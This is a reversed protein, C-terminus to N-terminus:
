LIMSSVKRLKNPTSNSVNRKRKGTARTGPGGGPIQLFRAVTSKKHADERISFDVDIVPEQLLIIKGPNGDSMKELKAPYQKHWNRLIDWLFGNPADTKISNAQCHSLSVRYGANMLASQFIKMKIPQLKVTSTLSALSYFLPVDPLEEKAVTLIGLMRKHTAYAETAGEENLHSIARDLWEQNHMSNIWIPGGIKHNSGCFECVNSVPPGNSTKCKMGNKGRPEIEGLPHTYHSKCGNCQFVHGINSYAKKTLLPSDRVRVFVRIYYDVYVSVLPEIVRKYRIAHSQISGLLIRLGMEHCSKSQLPLAGYKAYCQEPHAHSCLVSLDTCTVCLLGGNDVSQVASDLFISASGYPDIDVVDFRSQDDRSHQMMVMSADGHNPTCLDGVENFEINNIISEVASEEIDNAMVSRVGPIEKCYRVSRLGTASLGELIDVGHDTKNINKKTKSVGGLVEEKKKEIFLKIMMISM